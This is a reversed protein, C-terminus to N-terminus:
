ELWRRCPNHLVCLPAGGNSERKHLFAQIADCVTALCGKSYMIELGLQGHVSDAKIASSKQPLVSLFNFFPHKRLTTRGQQHVHYEKHCIRIQKTSSAREWGRTSQALHRGPRLPLACRVGSNNTITQKFVDLYM